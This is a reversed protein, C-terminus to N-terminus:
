CIRGTEEGLQDLLSRRWQVNRAAVQKVVLKVVDADNMANVTASYHSRQSLLTRQCEEIQSRKQDEPLISKTELWRQLRVVDELL